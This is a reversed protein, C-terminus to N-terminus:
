TLPLVLDQKIEQGIKSKRLESPTKECFLTVAQLGQCFDQIIKLLLVFLKLSTPLTKSPLNQSLSYSFSKESGPIM